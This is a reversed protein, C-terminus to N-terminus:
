GLVLILPLDSLFAVVILWHAVILPVLRGLRLYLVKLLLEVTFLTLFRAM